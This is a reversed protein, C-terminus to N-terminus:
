LIGFHGFIKCVDLNSNDFICTPEVAYSNIMLPLLIKHLQPLIMAAAQDCYLHSYLYYVPAGSLYISVLYLYLYISVLAGSM